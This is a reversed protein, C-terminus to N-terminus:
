WGTGLNRIKYNGDGDPTLIGLRSANKVWGSDEDYEGNPITFETPNAGEAPLFDITVEFALEKEGIDLSKLAPDNAIEKATYIKDVTIKASDMKEGYYDKFRLLLAHEIKEDDDLDEFDIESTEESESEEEDDLDEVAEALTVEYTYGEPFATGNYFKTAYGEYTDLKSNAKVLEIFQDEYILKGESYYAIQFEASIDKNSKNEGTFTLRIIGNEDAEDAKEVKYEIQDRLDVYTKKDERDFLGIELRDYDKITDYFEFFRTDGAAFYSVRSAWAEHVPMNNKDFYIIKPTVNNFTQSSTNKVKLVTMEESSGDDFTVDDEVLLAKNETSTKEVVPENTPVKGGLGIYALLAIIIVVLIAIIIGSKKSKDEM